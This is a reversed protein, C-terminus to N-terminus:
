SPVARQQHSEESKAAATPQEVEHEKLVRDLTVSRGLWNDAESGETESEQQLGLM